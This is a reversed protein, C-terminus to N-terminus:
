KLYSVASLCLKALGGRWYAKCDLDRLLEPFAQIVRLFQYERNDADM